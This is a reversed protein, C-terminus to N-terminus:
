KEVFYRTEKEKSFLFTGRQLLTQNENIFLIFQTTVLLRQTVM